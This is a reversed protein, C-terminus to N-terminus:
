AIYNTNYSYAYYTIFLLYNLFRWEYGLFSKLMMYIVPIIYFQMIHAYLPSVLIVVHAIGWKSKEVAHEKSYGITLYGLTFIVVQITMM